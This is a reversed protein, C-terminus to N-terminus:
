RAPFGEKLMAEFLKTNNASDFAKTYDGLQQYMQKRAAGTLGEYFATGKQRPLIKDLGSHYLDHMEKSLVVLDQKEAGGLYKAWAHHLRTEVSSGLEGGTDPASVGSAAWNYVAGVGALFIGGAIQGRTNAPLSNWADLPHQVVQWASSITSGINSVANWVAGAVDEAAGVPNTIAYLQTSQAGIYWQALSIGSTAQFVGGLTGWADQLNQAFEPSKGM